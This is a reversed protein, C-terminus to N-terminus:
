SPAGVMMGRRRDARFVHNVPRVGRRSAGWGEMMEQLFASADFSGAQAPEQDNVGLDPATSMPLGGEKDLLGCAILSKIHKCGTPDLGDRHFVRDPCDCTHGHVTQAVDYATGDAKRLRFAKTAAFSDARNPRFTYPM